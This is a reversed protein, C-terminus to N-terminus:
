PEKEPCRTCADCYLSRELGQAVAEDVRVCTNYECPTPHESLTFYGHRRYYDLRAISSSRDSSFLHAVTGILADKDEDSSIGQSTTLLYRLFAEHTRVLRRHREIDLFVGEVLDGAPALVDENTEALEFLPWTDNIGAILELHAHETSAFARLQEQSADGIDKQFRDAFVHKGQDTTVLHWQLSMQKISSLDVDGHFMTGTVVFEHLGEENPWVGVDEPRGDSESCGENSLEEFVMMLEEDIHESDHSVLARVHYDGKDLGKLLTVDKFRFRPDKRQVYEFAEIVGERIVSAIILDEQADQIHKCEEGKAKRRHEYDPCTCIFTRDELMSVTYKMDPTTSSPIYMRVVALSEKVEARQVSSPHNVRESM